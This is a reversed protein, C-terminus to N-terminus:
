HAMIYFYKSPYRDVPNKESYGGVYPKVLRPLTYQLVPIIPYDDMIKQAAESLLRKRTAPDLALNAETILAEADANCHFNTNQTNGCQVLAIFNTADNYDALWGDRAVQYEGDHRKKVFVKFEMNELRTQLGLKRKWEAAMFIAMKKHDDDTNYSLKITTGAKVGAQALLAQAYEVRKTMPWTAWAYTSPEAGNLGNIIVSYVPQQGDATIKDALVERDIVMSLAQRVRRDQLLPDRTNLGYYRLGLLTSMKLDQPMSTRLKQYSGTPVNYTMDTQGSQYLKFDANRDEIPLYSVRTLVVQKADWYHPNKELVIRSNVKWDKLVYPGNSLMHGPKTWAKGYKEVSARPVAGLQRNAMIEPLYAVPFATRVELTRADLARVGLDSVPKKGAVIEAGNQLFLGYTGAYNSANAPDVLRGIGYVFDAATLPSGDSWKLDPRLTFVWTLTDTQEWSQALGPLLRGENDTTSLGEFLDSVIANAPVTQALTPDLSEPEAGNGRTLEQKQALVVGPPVEAAVFPALVLSWVLFVAQLIKKQWM